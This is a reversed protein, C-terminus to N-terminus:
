NPLDCSARLAPRFGAALLADVASASGAQPLSWAVVGPRTAMAMFDGSPRGDRDGDLLRGSPDSWGRSSTGRIRVLLPSNLAVPARPTLTVSSRVGLPSPQAQYCASLLRVVQNDRTGFRGDPDALVLAYEGWTKRPRTSRAM